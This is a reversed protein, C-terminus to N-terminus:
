TINHIIQLSYLDFIWRFYKYLIAFLVNRFLIKDPDIMKEYFQKATECPICVKAIALSSVSNETGCSCRDNSWM